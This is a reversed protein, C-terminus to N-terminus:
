LEFFGTLLLMLAFGAILGIAVAHEHGHAHATPILEDATVYTMVGAASALMLALVLQSPAILIVSGILAGLPEALGSLCTIAFIRKKKTGAAYLPAATAIGEPVNHFAIALAVLYGLKPLYAYSAAVVLGEPVNHLTVGIAMLMGTKVLRGKVPGYEEFSFMHPIKADLVMIATAGVVFGVAVVIHGVNMDLARGVLNLFSVTLMVGAALGMSFDLFKQRP